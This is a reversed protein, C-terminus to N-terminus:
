MMERFVLNNGGIKIEDGDSLAQAGQLTEGNVKTKSFGGRHRIFFKDKKREVTAAVDGCLFGYIVIDAGARKGIINVEKELFIETPRGTSHSEMLIKARVAPVKPKEQVAAKPPPPEAKPPEKGELLEKYQRTDLCMTMGGMEAEEQRQSGILVGGSGFDFALIHKGVLINDGEKLNHQQVKKENVFIGNKSGLDKLIYHKDIVEIAAHKGSVATNDIVIDNGQIRGISINTKFQYEKLTKDKFKLVLRAM